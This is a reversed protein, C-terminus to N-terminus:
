DQLLGIADMLRLANTTRAVGPTLCYSFALRGDEFGDPFHYNAARGPLENAIETLALDHTTVIGIAGRQLLSRVVRETGARRDHSNTGSLLEDLLFLLPVAGRSLDHVQKLRTIEAYFRSLGGQLSDLICISAAVQLPSLVMRTARVPAGAQALVANVGVSRIFTSKGAMNPGSIILLQRDRGLHLTNGVAAAAPLLPHALGDADFTPGDFTAAGERMTPFCITALLTPFIYDPHERAFIAFASLAEVQAAADIWSRVSPGYQARWREAAWLWQPTWFVFPALIKVIWNGESELWDAITSLRAIAISPPQEVSALSAQLGTLKASSFRAKEIQAFIAALLPLEQAAGTLAASAQNTQTRHFYSICFNVLSLALAAAAKDWVAWAVLSFIWAASLIPAAIRLWAPELREISESWAVLDELGAPSGVAARLSGANGNRVAGGGPASASATRIATGLSVGLGTAPASRSAARSRATRLDESALALAEHFDLRPALERVSEQRARIEDVPAAALLWAALTAEGASTRPTSLLEFLSGSGFIDLDRAYPHAPDLFREGRSASSSGGSAWRDEIRALGRQYFSKRQGARRSERLVREHFVFLTVFLIAPAVVWPLAARDYKVLWAALLVGVLIVVLKVAVFARDRRKLRLEANQLTELRRLYDEAPTEM